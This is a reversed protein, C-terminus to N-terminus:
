RGIFGNPYADGILYQMALQIGEDTVLDCVEGPLAQLEDDNRALKCYYDHEINKQTVAVMKAFMDDHETFGPELHLQVKM